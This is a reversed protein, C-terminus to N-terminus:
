RGLALGSSPLSPKREAMFQVVPEVMEVPVIVKVPQPQPQQVPVRRREFRRQPMIQRAQRALTAAEAESIERWRRSLRYRNVLRPGPEVDVMGLALLAKM